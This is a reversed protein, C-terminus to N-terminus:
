QAAPKMHNNNYDSLKCTNELTNLVRAYESGKRIIRFHGNQTLDIVTSGAKALDSDGLQGGDIIMDIDNWLCKFENIELSSPENSINASTLALPEDLYSALEIMFQCNPIRIGITEQNLPNLEEPLTSKRDFVLTVPGPLLTNLQAESLTVKSWLALDSSNGVALALPKALNRGKISYIKKLSATNRALCCLGYITDTPVALVGGSKLIHSLQELNSLANQVTFVKSDLM